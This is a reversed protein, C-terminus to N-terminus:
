KTTSSAPCNTPQPPQLKREVSNPPSARVPDRNCRGEIRFSLGRFDAGEEDIRAMGAAADARQQEIVALVLRACVSERLDLEHRRQGADLQVGRAAVGACGRNCKSTPDPSVM